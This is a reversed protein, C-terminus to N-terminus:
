WAPAPQTAMGHPAGVPEAGGEDGDAPGGGTGGLGLLQGPGRQDLELLLM